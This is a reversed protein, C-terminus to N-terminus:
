VQQKLAIYISWPKPFLKGLYSIKLSVVQSWDPVQTAAVYSCVDLTKPCKIGYLLSMCAIGEVIIIRPKSTEKLYLSTQETYLSYEILKGDKPLYFKLGRTETAALGHVMVAQELQQRLFYGTFRMNELEQAMAKLEANFHLCYSYATIFLLILVNGLSNAILIELLTFGAAKHYM